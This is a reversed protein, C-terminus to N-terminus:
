WKDHGAKQLKSLTTQIPRKIFFAHRKLVEKSMYKKYDSEVAEKTLGEELMVRYMDTIGLGVLEWRYKEYCLGPIQNKLVDYRVQHFYYDYSNVDIDRLKEINAVKFRLRFYCVVM